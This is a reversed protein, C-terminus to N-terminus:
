RGIPASPPYCGAASPRANPATGAGSLGSHFRPGFIHHPRTECRYRRAEAAALPLGGGARADARAAVQGTNGDAGDSVGDPGGGGVGATCCLGGHGCVGWRGEAGTHALAMEVVEREHSTTAGAWDRFTSRFGHVTVANCGMRKLLQTLAMDSLHGGRPAVFVPWDSGPEDPKIATLIALAADSLPVEHAKGMKMREAPVTWLKAELDVEGWVMGRAEGSRAATLVTFELARAASAPRQRLEKMFTPAQAFPLAPHHKVQGTQKPLLLSLHGKGRAPNEGDRLGKVKAADLIKEIRGRLRGATEAKSM